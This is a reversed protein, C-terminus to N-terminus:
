YPSLMEEMSATYEELDVYPQMTRLAPLALSSNFTRICTGLLRVGYPKDTASMLLMLSPYLKACEAINWFRADYLSTAWQPYSNTLGAVGGIQHITTKEYKNSQTDTEESSWSNGFSAGGGIKNFSAKFSSSFEEKETEATSYETIKTVAESYLIGGLSFEQPVYYGWENLVNLLAVCHKHNDEETDVAKAIALLFDDAIKAKRFDISFCSKRIIQQALLYEDVTSSSTNRSKEHRFESEASGYGSSFSVSASNVNMKKLEHTVKSFSHENKELTIEAPNLQAPLYDGWGYLDHFSRKEGGKESFRIGRFINVNKFLFQKEEDSLELYNDVNEFIDSM